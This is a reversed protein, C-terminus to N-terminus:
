PMARFPCYARKPCHQHMKAVCEDLSKRPFLFSRGSVASFPRFLSLIIALSRIPVIPSHLLGQFLRDGSLAFHPAAPLHRYTGQRFDQQRHPPRCWDATGVLYQDEASPAVGGPYPPRHSACHQEYPDATNHCRGDPPPCSKRPLVVFFIHVSRIWM